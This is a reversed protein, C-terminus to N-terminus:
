FGGRFQDPCRGHGSFPLVGQIEASPANGRTWVMRRRCDSGSTPGTPDVRLINSIAPNQMLAPLITGYLWDDDRLNYARPAFIYATSTRPNNAAIVSAEFFCTDFVEVLGLQQAKVRQAVFWGINVFEYSYYPQFMSIDTKPMSKRVEIWAYSLAAWLGNDTNVTWQGSFYIPWAEAVAGGGLEQNRFM